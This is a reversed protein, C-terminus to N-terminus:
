NLGLESVKARASAHSLIFETQDLGGVLAFTFTRSEGPPITTPGFSLISRIDWPGVVTQRIGGSLLAFYEAPTRPDPTPGFYGNIFGAYNLPAHTNAQLGVRPYGLPELAQAILWASDYIARDNGASSAYLLDWDMLLGAFLNAVPAAGTNTFTYAILVYGDNPPAGFAFTRQRITLDALAPTPNLPM